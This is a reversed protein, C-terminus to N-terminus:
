ADNAHVRVVDHVKDFPEHLAIFAPGKVNWHAQKMQSSLDVSNALRVGLLDIM